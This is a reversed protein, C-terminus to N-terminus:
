RCHNFGLRNDNQGAILNQPDTPNIAIVEEAQRRRSCDQNVRINVPKGHANLFVNQCGQTAAQSLAESALGQPPSLSSVVAARRALEGSAELLTYM